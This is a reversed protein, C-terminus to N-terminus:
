KTPQAGYVIPGEAICQAGLEPDHCVIPVDAPHEDLHRRLARLSVDIGGMSTAVTRPLLGLGRKGFIQPNAFAADGAFFVASGDALHIRYGCHGPTHGPLSFMEISGDGLIDLGQTSDALHPVDDHLEVRHKLAGFDSRAYGRAGAQWASGEHAADWERQSLHFRAHALTKMAGTHDYHLHTMLIHSVDAARLGLEEIRPVVSWREYFVLGAKQMISGMLSGVNSPGEHCYPADLLIPGVESHEAVGGLFPLRIFSWGGDEFILSSPVRAYACHFLWFREIM